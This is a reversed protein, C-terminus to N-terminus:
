LIQRYGILEIGADRIARRFDGDMLLRYDWVRRQWSSVITKVEESEVSPHFYIESVGEPMERILRCAAEKVDGYSTGPPSSFPFAYLCDPMPVGLEEALAIDAEAAQRPIVQGDNWFWRRYLRFGLGYRRCRELALPLYDPADPGGLPYVSGMHNDAHSFFVGSGAFWEFQADLEREVDERRSHAWFEECNRYLYGNEDELSPLGTLSKWRWAPWESTLTTHLGVRKEGRKVCWAAAEDRGPATPMLTSSTIYDGELLDFVARNYSHCMGFDDANIILYKESM